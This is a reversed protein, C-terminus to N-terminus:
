GNLCDFPLIVMSRGIRLVTKGLTTKLVGGIVYFEYGDSDEQTQFNSGKTEKSCMDRWKFFM